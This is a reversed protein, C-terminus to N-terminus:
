LHGRTTSLSLKGVQVDVMDGLKHMGMDGEEKRSADANDLEKEVSGERREVRQEVPSRKKKTRTFTGTDIPSKGACFFLFKILSQFFM